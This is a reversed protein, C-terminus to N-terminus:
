NSSAPPAKALGNLWELTLAYFHEGFLDNHTSEPFLHFQKPEKALEFLKQGQRLPVIRDQAGHFELLPMKIDAIREFSEYRDITLFEAPLFPYHIQAMKAVSLFPAALILGGARFEVAMKTAVGTGLSFGFLIIQDEKVGLAILSKIYARADAYLGQETPKGPMGSYGRYEALLFGYGTHLFPTAIPAITRLNDGNGHFFVITFPKGAAPAYWGNLVLGDETTVPLEHFRADAHAQGPPVYFREPFYLLSRQVFYTLALASLYGVILIFLISKAIGM